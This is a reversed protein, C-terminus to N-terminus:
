AATRGPTAAESGANPPQNEFEGGKNQSIFSQTGARMLELYRCSQNDATRRYGDLL